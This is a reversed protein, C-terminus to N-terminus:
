AAPDSTPAALLAYVQAGHAQVVFHWRHASPDTGTYREIVTLASRKSVKARKAAAEALKMKKNIGEAICATVATIVDDDKHLDVAQQIPLLQEPGVEEVSLLLSNYSIGQEQTYSYAATAAVNGRSKFNKFVVIKRQADPQQSVTALTYACDFDDVIDSTGGYIPKGDEGARKNTHALAVLTGGKLVFRRILDAFESCRDKRMVDVFKKLTDIIVIVDQATNNAIMQETADRFTKADFGRHGAALMHFGYEEAIKNKEVLGKCTDDMNIYFLKSPDISGANIGEILLHIVLLTKGTNPWAYIVSAQGKLILDGLLLVDEVMQKELEDTDGILSYKLLPCKTAKVPAAVARKIVEYECLVFQERMIAPIDAGGERALHILTGLTPANSVDLRFSRWKTEIEKRDKYSAGKSSWENALEFGADSGQTAHFIGMLTRVWQDYGCSADIYELLRAVKEIPVPPMPSADGRTTRAPESRTAGAVPELALGAVIEQPSYRRDPNWAVLRCQFASGDAARRKPKGNVGVPLRAWRTAAGTAGPDCLRRGLVAKLLDEAEAITLPRSFIIGAQYNGPSTEILWSPQFDGLLQFPVKSGLDDLLVFHVGAAHRKRAQISGDPQLAFSACNIYNNNGAPCHKGLSESRMATWGGTDPDGPKSCVALSAGEPVSAFITSAFEANTVHALAAGTRSTGDSGEHAASIPANLAASPPTSAGVSQCDTHPPIPPNLTNMRLKRTSNRGCFSLFARHASPFPVM